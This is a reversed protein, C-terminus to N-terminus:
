VLPDHNRGEQKIYEYLEKCKKRNTCTIITERHYLTNASYIATTDSEAEFLNCNECYPEVKLTIM